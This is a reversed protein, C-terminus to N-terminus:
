EPRRRVIAAASEAGVRNVARVRVDTPVTTSDNATLVYSRQASPLIVTRWPAPTSDRLQVVWWRVVNRGGPTLRLTTGGTASDQVVRVIPRDPVVASLWPMAPILAKDAYENRLLQLAIPEVTMAAAAASDPAQTRRASDARVRLSDAITQPPLIPGPVLPRMLAKMSFHVNGSAGPTARTIRIQERIEEPPLRGDPVARSTFLGPWILRSKPNHEVWWKLLVPFSQPV